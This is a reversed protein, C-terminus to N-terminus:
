SAGRGATLTSNTKSRRSGRGKGGERRGAVCHFTPEPDGETLGRYFLPHHSLCHASSTFLPPSTSTPPHLSPDWADTPWLTGQNVNIPPGFLLLGMVLTQTQAGGTAEPCLLLLLVSSGDASVKVRLCHAPPVWAEVTGLGLGSEREMASEREM